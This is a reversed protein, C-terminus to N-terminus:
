EQSKRGPQHHRDRRCPASFEPDMIIVEAVSFSTRKREARGGCVAVFSSFEDTTKGFEATFNCVEKKARNQVALSFSLGFIHKQEGKLRRMWALLHQAKLDGGSQTKLWASRTGLIGGASKRCNAKCRFRQQQLIKLILAPVDAPDGEFM